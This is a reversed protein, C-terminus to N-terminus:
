VTIYLCPMAKFNAYCLRTDVQSPYKITFQTKKDPDIPDSDRIKLEYSAGSPTKTYETFCVAHNGYDLVTM